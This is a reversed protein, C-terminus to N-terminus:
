MARNRVRGWRNRVDSTTTNCITSPSGCWGLCPSLHCLLSPDEISTNSNGKKAQPDGSRTPSPPWYTCDGPPPTMTSNQRSHPNLLVKKGDMFILAPSVATHPQSNAISLRLYQYKGSVTVIKAVKAFIPLFSRLDKGLPSHARM